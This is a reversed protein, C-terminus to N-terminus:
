VGKRDIENDGPTCITHLQQVLENPWARAHTALLRPQDSDTGFEVLAADIGDMSTGSMLGIYLAMLNNKSLSNLQSYNVQKEHPRGNRLSHGMQQIYQLLLM